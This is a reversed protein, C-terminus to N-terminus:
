QYSFTISALANASGATIEGTQVYKATLPIEIKFDESDSTVLEIQNTAGKLSSDPGLNFPQATNGAFFQVGIGKAQSDSTLKVTNSTNTQDTQDTLVMAVTVNSACTLYATSSVGESRSGVGNFVSESVEGMPFNLVSQDIDCGKATVTIITPNIVIKSTASWGSSKEFGTMVAATITPTTITGSVLRSDTKIFYVQVTFGIKTVSGSWTVKEQDTLPIFKTSNTDKVGIIFGIGPVGTKYVGYTIGDVTATIGSPQISSDLKVNASTCPNFIATCSFVEMVNANTVNGLQQGFESADANQTISIPAPSLIIQPTTVSIAMASLSFLIAFIAILGSTVKRLM